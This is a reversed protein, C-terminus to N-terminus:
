RPFGRKSWTVPTSPTGDFAIATVPLRVTVFWVLAPKTVSVVTEV